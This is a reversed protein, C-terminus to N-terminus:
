EANTIEMGVSNDVLKVQKTRGTEDLYRVIEYHHDTLLNFSNVGTRAINWFVPNDNNDLIERTPSFLDKIQNGIKSLVRGAASKREKGPSQTYYEKELPLNQAYVRRETEFRLLFFSRPEGGPPKPIRVQRLPPMSALHDTNRAPAPLTIKIDSQRPTIQTERAPINISEAHGRSAIHQVPRPRDTGGTVQFLLLWSVSALIALTAAVAINRTSFLPRLNKRPYKKLAERNAYVLSPDAVLKTKRFADLTKEAAPDQKLHREFAARDEPELDGELYSICLLGFPLSSTERGAPDMKLSRSIRKEPDTFPPMQVNVFADFEERYEPHNELFAFLERERAPSLNGEAYDLFYLEYNDINMVMNM